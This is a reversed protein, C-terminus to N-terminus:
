DPSQFASQKRDIYTAPAKGQVHQMNLYYDTNTQLVCGPRDRLYMKLQGEISIQSVCGPVANSKTGGAKTSVWYEILSHTFGAPPQFMLTFQYNPNSSTTFQSALVKTGAPITMRVSNLASSSWNIDYGCVLNAGEVCNESGGPQQPNPDDPEPQPEPEPEPENSGGGNGGTVVGVTNGTTTVSLVGNQYSFGTVSVGQLTTNNIKLTATSQAEAVAGFTGLAFGISAALVTKKCNM